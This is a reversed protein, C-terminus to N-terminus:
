GTVSPLGGTAVPGKVLSSTALRSRFNSFVAEPSSPKCVAVPPKEVWCAGEECYNNVDAQLM